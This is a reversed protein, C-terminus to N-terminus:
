SRKPIQIAIRVQTMWAIDINETAPGVVQATPVAGHAATAAAAVVRAYDSANHKYGGGTFSGHLLVSCFISLLSPPFCPSVSLFLPLFLAGGNPENTIELLIQAPAIEAAYHATFNGVWNGYGQVAEVSSPPKGNDYLPHGGADMIALLRLGAGKLAAIYSDTSSFNYHGRTPELGAWSFDTRVISIGQSPVKSYFRAYYLSCFHLFVSHFPSYFQFFFSVAAVVPGLQAPTGHTHMNVGLTASADTSASSGSAARVLLLLRIAAALSM